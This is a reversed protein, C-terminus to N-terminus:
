KEVEISTKTTVVLMKKIQKEIYKRKLKDMPNM